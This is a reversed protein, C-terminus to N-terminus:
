WNGYSHLSLFAVWNDNMNIANIVAQTEPESGGGTGTNLFKFDIIFHQCM